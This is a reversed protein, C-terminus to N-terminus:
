KKSSISFYSDLAVFKMKKLKRNQDLFPFISFGISYIEIETKKKPKSHFHFYLFAFVECLHIGNKRKKCQNAFRFFPFNVFIDNKAM